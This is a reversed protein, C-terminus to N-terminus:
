RGFLDNETVLPRQLFSSRKLVGPASSRMKKDSIKKSNKSTDQNGGSKPRQQQNHPHMSARVSVQDAMYQAIFNATTPSSSGLAHVTATTTQYMRNEKQEVLMENHQQKEPPQVEAAALDLRPVREPRPLAVPTTTHSQPLSFSGAAWSPSLAEGCGGLAENQECVSVPASTSSGLHQQQQQIEDETGNEVVPALGRPTSLGNCNVEKTMNGEEGGSILATSSEATPRRVLYDLEEESSGGASPSAEAAKFRASVADLAAPLSPHDLIRRMSAETMTDPRDGQYDIMHCAGGVLSVRNRSQPSSLSGHDSAGRNGLPSGYVDSSSAGGSSGVTGPHRGEATAFHYMEQQQQRHHHNHNHHISHPHHAATTYVSSAGSSGPQFANVMEYMTSIKSRVGAADFVAYDAPAPSITPPPPPLASANANTNTTASGTAPSTVAALAAMTSRTFSVDDDDDGGDIEASAPRQRSINFSSSPFHQSQPPSSLSQHHLITTTPPPPPQEVPIGVALLDDYVDAAGIDEEEGGGDLFSGEGSTSRLVVANYQDDGSEASDADTGEFGGLPSQQQQQQQSQQMSTMMQKICRLASDLRSREELLREVEAAHSEAMAAFTAAAEARVAEVALQATHSSHRDSQACAAAHRAEIERIQGDHEMKLASIQARLEQIVENDAVTPAGAASPSSSSKGSSAGVLAMEAEKLAEGIFSAQEQWHLAIRNAVELRGQVEELERQSNSAARQGAKILDAARREDNATAATLSELKTLAESVRVEMDEEWRSLEVTRLATVPHM